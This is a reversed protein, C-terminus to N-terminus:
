LRYLAHANDFCLARQEHEPRRAVIQHLAAVWDALEGGLRCVPWDGGFVVRRPGFADLTTDVVDAFDDARWAGPAARNILGSVKVVVNPQAAITALGRRWADLAETPGFPDPNGCHDLIFQTEPCLRALRAGDGLDEPRLCLDFSLTRSGLLRCGDVFSGSLCDGPTRGGHLVSRVGRIAPHAIRDLYLAFDPQSPDGGVVAAAMRASPDDCLAAVYAAEDTRQAPTVDVEMYITHVIGTDAAAADYDVPLYNRGLPLPANDLWPLHFRTRDWLHQHTDIIPHM